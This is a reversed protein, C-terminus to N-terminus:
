LTESLKNLLIKRFINSYEKDEGVKLYVERWEDLSLGIGEKFEEEKNTMRVSDDIFEGLDKATKFVKIYLFQKNDGVWVKNFEKAFKVLETIIESDDKDWLNGLFTYQEKMIKAEEKSIKNKKLLNNILDCTPIAPIKMVLRETGYAWKYFAKQFFSHQIYGLLVRPNSFYSYINEIGNKNSFILAHIYVSKSTPLENTFAHGRIAKHENVNNTWFNFSNYNDRM